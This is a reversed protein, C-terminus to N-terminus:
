RSTASAPPAEPKPPDAPYLLNALIEAETLKIEPLQFSTKSLRM